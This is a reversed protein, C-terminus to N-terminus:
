GREHAKADQQDKLLQVISVRFATHLVGGLEEECPKGHKFPFVM